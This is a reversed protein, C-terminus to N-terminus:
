LGAGFFGAFHGCQDRTASSVDAGDCSTENSGSTTRNNDEVSKLIAVAGSDSICWKYLAINSVGVKDLADTFFM